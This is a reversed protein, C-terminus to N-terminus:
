VTGVPTQSFFPAAVPKPSFSHIEVRLRVRRMSLKILFLIAAMSLFSGEFFVPKYTSSHPVQYSTSGPVLVPKRNWCFLKRSAKTAARFKLIKWAWASRTRMVFIACITLTSCAIIM